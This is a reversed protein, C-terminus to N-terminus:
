KFADEENLFGASVCIDMDKYKEKIKKVVTSIKAIRSKGIDRGSFVMCHRYAGANYAAEAEKLIEEDTKM